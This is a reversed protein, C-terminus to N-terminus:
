FYLIVKEWTAEDYPVGKWVTLFMTQNQKQKQAIIHDIELYATPLIDRKDSIDNYSPNEQRDFNRLKQAAFEKLIVHPIWCCKRYSYKEFKVLYLNTDKDSGKSMWTLIKDVNSSPYIRKILKKSNLFPFKLHDDGFEELIYNGNSDREPSEMDSGSSDEVEDPIDSMEDSSSSEDEVEFNLKRRKAKASRPPLPRKAPLKTSKIIDEDVSTGEM